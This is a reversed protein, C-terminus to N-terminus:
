LGEFYEVWAKGLAERGYQKRFVEAQLKRPYYGTTLDKALDQTLELAEADTFDAPLLRCHPNIKALEQIGGRDSAVWPLGMSMAELLNIPLGESHRTYLVVADLQSYIKALQAHETIRGHYSVHDLGTFDEEHYDIGSGYLHWHIPIGGEQKAMHLITDIGKIRQLRGVFGFQLTFERRHPRENEPLPPMEPFLCTLTDVEKRPVAQLLNARTANCTAILHPATRVVTKYLQSWGEREEYDATTHHHHVACRSKKAARWPLLALNSQGNTYVIDWAFLGANFVERLLWTMKESKSAEGYPVPMERFDVGADLLRRRGREELANSTTLLRVEWGAVTALYCSLEVVHTEIGGYTNFCPSYILIRVNPINVIEETFCLVSAAM